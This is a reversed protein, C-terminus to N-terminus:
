EGAAIRQVLRALEGVTRVDGLANLPISIDYTEELEFMLDMVAVSDINLETTMDTEEGIQAETTNVKALEACVVEVVEHYAPGAGANATQSM